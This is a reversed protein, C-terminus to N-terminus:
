MQADSIKTVFRRRWGACSAPALAFASSRRPTDSCRVRRAATDAHAAHRTQGYASWISFSM